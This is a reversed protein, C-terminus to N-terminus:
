WDTWIEEVPERWRPADIVDGIVHIRRWIGCGSVGM